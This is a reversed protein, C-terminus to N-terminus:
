TTVRMPQGRTIVRLEDYTTSFVTNPTGAAAWIVAHEALSEDVVTSIPAPHGVPAVGGIAQGTAARVQDPTARTIPGSGLRAALAAPDVRHAGSTMVLLPADDCRFVLSNAIAAIPCGLANAADAATRTSDPLHRVTSTIGAQRLAAAVTRSTPPLQDIEPTSM